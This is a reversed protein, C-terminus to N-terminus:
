AARRLPISRPAAKKHPRRQTLLALLLIANILPLAVALTRQWLRLRPLGEIWHSVAAVAAEDVRNRGVPPMKLTEEDSMRRLLVSWEPRGPRVVRAQKMGLDHNVLGNILFRAQPHADFRADFGARAGNPRHCNACNVDLYSRVRCDLSSAVHHLPALPAVNALQADTPAPELLGAERWQNFSPQGVLQRTNLGLLYRANDNHCQLCSAGELHAWRQEGHGPAEITKNITYELLDADQGDARWRYNAAYVGGEIDRVLVRTELPKDALKLHQVFVTGAPFSWEAKPTFGIKGGAPLFLWRSATAGDNWAPANVQYPLATSAPQQRPTDAFVGTASIASPLPPTAPVAATGAQALTYIRGEAMELLYVEGEADWGFSTLQSARAPLRCLERVVPQNNADVALSWIRGSGNDGFLYKGGLEAAHRRGRYVLGGIIARNGDTHTYEYFPPQESGLIRSPRPRIDPRPRTGEQYAWQYNGGPVLLNVEERADEGVDGCWIRGTHPDCSIRYPNRLGIAYFEELAGPQGVFPNDKPIFYHATSGSRPKRRPPRSRTSDCDVDIRIVGAFLNKDLAQANELRDISDGEDGLGLYLYGETPHFFMGGANHYVHRDLQDILVLESKPDAAVAGDAITFRSLRNRTPKDRPLAKASKAPQDTYNYFVYFFGRKSSGVKGFEPHFALSLLGCEHHGQCQHRLDLLVHAETAATDKRFWLVRGERECVVLRDTGPWPCLWVPNQFKLKAFAPVCVWQGPLLPERPPFNLFPQPGTPSDAALAMLAFFFFLNPRRNM